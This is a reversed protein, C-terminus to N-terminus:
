GAVPFAAECTAHAAHKLPAEASAASEGDETAMSLLQRVPMPRGYLYGQLTHCGLQRLIRAQGPTEVGEAVTRIALQDALHVITDVITRSKADDELASVFSRDVKLEDLPIKRLYALSSFGTGFDDMSVAVHRARIRELIGTVHAEDEILVSETVEVVLRSPALGSNALAADIQAEFTPDFFQATSVNVSVTWAAPWRSADECARELVWRGVGLILRNQEALPIFEGPAVAGLRGNKWRILAEAGVPRAGRSDIKPQYLLSFENRVLAHELESLITLHRRVAKAMDVDYGRIPQYNATDSYTLAFEACQYLASADDAGDACRAYGACLHVNPSSEGEGSPLELCELLRQLQTELVHTHPFFVAFTGSQVRAVHCANQEACARLRLAIRQVVSDGVLSGFISNIGKLNEVKILALAGDQPMGRAAAYHEVLRARLQRANPLGTLEDHNAQYAATREALSVKEYLQSMEYKSRALEVNRQNLRRAYFAVISVVIMTSLCIFIGPLVPLDRALAYRATLLMLCAGNAGLAVIYGPRPLNVVLFVSIIVQFQAIVGSLNSASTLTAQLLFALAYLALFAAIRFRGSPSLGHGPSAQTASRLSDSRGDHPRHIRQAYEPKGTTPM